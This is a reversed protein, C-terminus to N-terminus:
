TWGKEKMTLKHTLLFGGLWITHCVIDMNKIMMAQSRDFVQRWFTALCFYYVHLTNKYLPFPSSVSYIKLCLSQKMLHILFSRAHPPPYQIDCMNHWSIFKYGNFYPMIACKEGQIFTVTKVNEVSYQILDFEIPDHNENM